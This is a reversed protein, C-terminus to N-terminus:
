GREEGGNGEANAVSSLGPRDNKIPAGSWFFQFRRHVGRGGM